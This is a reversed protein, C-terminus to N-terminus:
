SQFYNDIQSMQPVIMENNNFDYNIGVNTTVTATENSMTPSNMNLANQVENISVLMNNNDDKDHDTDQIIIPNEEHRKSDFIALKNNVNQSIHIPQTHSLNKIFTKNNELNSTSTARSEIAPLSGQTGDSGYNLTVDNDNNPGIRGGRLPITFLRTPLLATPRTHNLLSAILAPFFTTKIILKNFMAMQSNFQPAHKSTTTRSAVFIRM